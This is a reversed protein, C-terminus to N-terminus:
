DLVWIRFGCHDLLRFTFRGSSYLLIARTGYLPLKQSCVRAICNSYLLQSSYHQNQRVQREHFQLLTTDFFIPLVPLFEPLVLFCLCIGNRM